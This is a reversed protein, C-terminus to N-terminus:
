LRVEEITYTGPRLMQKAANEGRAIGDTLLIRVTGATQKDTLLHGSELVAAAQGATETGPDVFALAPATKKMVDLVFPYHTCGLIATDAEQGVAQGIGERVAEELAADAHGEEILGALSPCSVEIIQVQPFMDACLIKHSHSGITAPTALVAIRKNRSCASAAQLGRSMGVLPYSMEKEIEDFATCTITNCAIVGAKVAAAELYKAMEMSFQIIEKRSRNGYPNRKTDGLYLIDEHPLQEQLRKVVSLGGIGSDFVGIPLKKNNM